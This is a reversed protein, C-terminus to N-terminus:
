PAPKDAGIADALDSQLRKMLPLMVSRTLEQSKQMVVPMKKLYAVGAPSKYFAVLGDVEEQSFNEGYIAAYRAHLKAYALEEKASKSFSDAIGDLTQQQKATLQRGRGAEAIAQRVYQGSGAVISSTIEEMHSAALLSDISEPSPAAAASVLPFLALVAIYALKRM